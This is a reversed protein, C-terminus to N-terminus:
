AADLVRQEALVFGEGFGATIEVDPAEGELQVGMLALEQKVLEEKEDAACLFADTLPNQAEGKMFHLTNAPTGNAANNKYRNDGIRGRWFHGGVQTLDKTGNAINRSGASGIRVDRLFTPLVYPNHSNISATLRTPPDFVDTFASLDVNSGDVTIDASFLFTIPYFREKGEKLMERLSDINEPTVEVVMPTMVLATEFHELITGGYCNQEGFTERIWALDNPIANPYKPNFATPTLKNEPDHVGGWPKSTYEEDLAVFKTIITDRVDDYTEGSQAAIVGAKTCGQGGITPIRKPLTEGVLKRRDEVPLTHDILVPSFSDAEGAVKKKQAEDLHPSEQRSDHLANLAAESSIVRIADGHQEVHAARDPDPTVPMFNRRVFEIEEESAGKERMAEARVAAKITLYAPPADPSASTTKTNVAVGMQEGHEPDAVWTGISYNGAPVSTYTNNRELPGEVREAVVHDPYFDVYVNGKVDDWREILHGKADRVVPGTIVTQSPDAEIAALHDKFPQSTLYNVVNDTKGLESSAAGDDKQMVKIILKMVHPAIEKYAAKERLLLKARDEDTPFYSVYIDRAERMRKYIGEVEEPNTTVRKGVRYGNSRTQLPKETPTTGPAGPLVQRIFPTVFNLYTAEYEGLAAEEAANDGEARAQRVKKDADWLAADVANAQQAYQIMVEVSVFNDQDDLSPPDITITNPTTM